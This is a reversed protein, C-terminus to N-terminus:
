CGNDAFSCAVRHSGSESFSHWHLRLSKRDKSYPLQYTIQESNDMDLTNAAMIRLVSLSVTVAGNEFQGDVYRWSLTMFEQHHMNPLSPMV